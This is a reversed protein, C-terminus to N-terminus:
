APRRDLWQGLPITLKQLLWGLAIFLLLYLLTALWAPLQAYFLDYRAMLPWHLLYTEYSYVGFLYLLRCDLAKLAFAAVLLAMALLSSAQGIFFGDHFGGAQLAAALRPWDAATNHSAMFGAALLLLLTLAIGAPRTRLAALRADLLAGHRALLWAALIGLSFAHTHLRHLWNAQLQLPDTLAFANALVALLLATLWPWRASFLLPFLAYFALMWSIYWFPSNIDEWASARPFWGLFSQLLYGPPYHRGLVLADLAFLAALVLWFPIFVKVLRRRYFEAAGLPKKLMGLTLGFGSMFLFLDVGIGAAISLPYLFRNDDVLMYAIHAFVIALIGLGKLEQTVAPPLAGGQRRRRLSLLLAAAFVLLFLSSSQSAHTLSIPM